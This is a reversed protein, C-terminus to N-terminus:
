ANSLLPRSLPVVCLCAAGDSADIESAFAVYAVPGARCIPPTTGTVRARVVRDDVHVEVVDGIHPLACNLQTTVPAAYGVRGALQLRIHLVYEM